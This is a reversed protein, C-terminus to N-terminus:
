MTGAPQFVVTIQEGDPSQGQGTVSQLRFQGVVPICTQELNLDCLAGPVLDDITFPANPSLVCNEVALVASTLATRTQAAALASDNDQITSVTAVDELLGDLAVVSPAAISYGFITDGAAGGGSGRVGWANTQATGDLRPTPPVIFHDDLFTGISVTPVVLGGALVERGVTTWDIGINAIDRIKPGAMLHQVALLDMMGTIGCPTPEVDLGPSPDPAMADDSIDQFITALDTPTDYLHDKHILRHDWWATLDRATIEFTDPPPAKPVTIPGVWVLSGDRFLALEHRWPRIQSLEACCDSSFGAANVTATSTDDLVRGWTLTTWPVSCVTAGGGREVVFAEYAGCGLRERVSKWRSV